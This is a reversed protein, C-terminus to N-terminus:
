IVKISFKSFVGRKQFDENQKDFISGFVCDFFGKGLDEKVIGFCDECGNRIKVSDGGIITDSPLLEISESVDM